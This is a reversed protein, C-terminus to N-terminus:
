GNFNSAVALAAGPAVEVGYAIPSGGSGTECMLIRTTLTDLAFQLKGKNANKVHVLHDHVSSRNYHQDMTYSPNAVGIAADNAASNIDDITPGAVALTNVIDNL